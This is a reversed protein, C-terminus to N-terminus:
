RKPATCAPLSEYTDVLAETQADVIKMDCSASSYIPVLVDRKKVLHLPVLKYSKGAEPVFSAMSMCGAFNRGVGAITYTHRIYIRKNVQLRVPKPSSRLVNFFALQGDDPGPECNAHSFANFELGQDLTSKDDPFILTASPTGSPAQPYQPISCGSLVLSLVGIPGLLQKM